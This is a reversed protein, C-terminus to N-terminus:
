EIPWINTISIISWQKELVNSSFYLFEAAKETRRRRSLLLFFIIWLTCNSLIFIFSATLKEINGPISKLMEEKTLFSCHYLVHLLLIRNWGESLIHSQHNQLSPWHSFVWKLTVWFSCNSSSHLLFIFSGVSCNRESTYLVPRGASYYRIIWCIVM